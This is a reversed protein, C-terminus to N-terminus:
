ISGLPQNHHTYMTQLLDTLSLFPSQVTVLHTKSDIKVSILFGNGNEGVRHFKCWLVLLPVKSLSDAWLRIAAGMNRKM